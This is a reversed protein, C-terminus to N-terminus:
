APRRFEASALWEPSLLTWFDVALRERVYAYPLWGYGVEGWQSGWCLRALLAGRGARLRRHDDYGVALAAVGGRISDFVTPYPIEAEASLSGPVPFGLVSVFGAALWSRVTQLVEAGTTGRGDLRVYRLGDFRRSSAYVFGDPQCGLRAPDYPWCREPPVGFRAVVELAACPPVGSDGTWGLLRQAAQYVFLASPDLIRGSSRREFYRALGTCALPVSAALVGQDCVKDFYERWDVRDPRTGCPKLRKLLGAVAEQQPLLDRVDPLDRHFGFGYPVFCSM